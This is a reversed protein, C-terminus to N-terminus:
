KFRQCWPQGIHALARVGMTDLTVSLLRWRFHRKKQSDLEYNETASGALATLGGNQNVSTVFMEWTLWQFCDRRQWCGPDRRRNAPYRLLTVSLLIGSPM